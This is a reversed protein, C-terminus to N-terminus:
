QDTFRKLGEHGQFCELVTNVCHNVAGLKEQKFLEHFLRNGVIIAEQAAEAFHLRTQEAVAPGSRALDLVPKAM